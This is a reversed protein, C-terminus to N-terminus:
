LALTEKQDIVFKYQKYRNFNYNAL